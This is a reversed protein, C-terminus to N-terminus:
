PRLSVAGANETLAICSLVTVTLAIAGHIIARRRAAQSQAVSWLSLASSRDSPHISFLKLGIRHVVM